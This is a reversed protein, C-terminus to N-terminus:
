VRHAGEPQKLRTEPLPVAAQSPPLSWQLLPPPSHLRNRVVELDRIAMDITPTADAYLAVALAAASQAARDFAAAEAATDVTNRGSRRNMFRRGADSGLLPTVLCFPNRKSCFDSM